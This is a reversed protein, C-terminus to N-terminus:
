DGRGRTSLRARRSPWTRRGSGNNQRPRPRCTRGRGWRSSGGHILRQADAGTLENQTAFPLAVHCPVERVTRGRVHRVHCSLRQGYEGIRDGELEKIQKLLEVDLGDPDHVYGSTDSCAVVRGGLHQVKEIAHIAVNGSGSVVVDRGDFSAGRVRLM